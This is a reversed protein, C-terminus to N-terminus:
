FFAKGLGRYSPVAVLDAGFEALYVVSFREMIEGSKAPRVWVMDGIRLSVGAPLAIPTQVEGWGEAPTVAAGPPLGVLVPAKDEGIAGSAVFGGSQVVVHREDPTRTVRLAIAVAPSCLRAAYGDFLHGCLLGSGMTVETAALDAVASCFSGTGGTNFILPIGSASMRPRVALLEGLEARASALKWRAVAQMGAVLMNYARSAFPSADPVGAVHAEYAMLGTFELGRAADIAAVVRAVDAVSRLPSRRVGVHLWAAAELPRLAVDVDVVVPVVLHALSDVMLRVIRGAGVLRVVHRMDSVLSIPYAVLVDNVGLDALRSAVPSDLLLWAAESASFCMLSTFATPALEIARAILGPVRLSKTALRITKNGRSAASAYSAVNADFATVDVVAAPTTAGMSELAAGAADIARPAAAGRGRSSRAAAWSWAVMLVVAAGGLALWRTSLLDVGDMWEGVALVEGLLAEM